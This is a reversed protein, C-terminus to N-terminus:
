LLASPFADAPLRLASVKIPMCSRLGVRGRLVNRRGLDFQLQGPDRLGYEFAPCYPLTPLRDIEFDPFTLEDDEKARGTTPFGGSSLMIAPKSSTASPSIRSSPFATSPRVVVAEHHELFM